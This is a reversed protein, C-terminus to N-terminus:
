LISGIKSELGDKQWQYLDVDDEHAEDTSQLASKLFAGDKCTM